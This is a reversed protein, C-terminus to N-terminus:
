KRKESHTLYNEYCNARHGLPIKRVCARYSVCLGERRCTECLWIWQIEAARLFVWVILSVTQIERGGEDTEELFRFNEDMKLANVIKGM